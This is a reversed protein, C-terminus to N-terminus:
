FKKRSEPERSPTTLATDPRSPAETLRLSRKDRAHFRLTREAREGCRLSIISSTFPSLRRLLADCGKSRGGAARGERVPREKGPVGRIKPQEQALLAYLAGVSKTAQGSLTSGLDCVSIPVRYLMLVTGRQSAAAPVKVVFVYVQDRRATRHLRAQLNEERVGTGACAVSSPVPSSALQLICLTACCAGSDSPSVGHGGAGESSSKTLFEAPPGDHGTTRGASAVDHARCSATSFAEPWATACCRRMKWPRMKGTSAVGKRDSPTSDPRTTCRASRGATTAPAGGAAADAAPEATSSAASDRSPRARAASTSSPSVSPSSAISIRRCSSSASAAGRAASGPSTESKQKPSSAPSSPSAYQGGERGQTCRSMQRLAGDCAREEPEDREQAGGLRSRRAAQARPQQAADYQVGRHERPRPRM